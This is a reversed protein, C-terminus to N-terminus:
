GGHLNPKFSGRTSLCKCDPQPPSIVGKELKDASVGTAKKMFFICYLVETPDRPKRDTVWRYAEWM